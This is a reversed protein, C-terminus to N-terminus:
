RPNFQDPNLPKPGAERSQSTQQWRALLPEVRAADADGFVRRLVDRAANLRGSRLLAHAYSSAIEDENPASRQAAALHRLAARPQNLAVDLLHGLNHLYSACTPHLQIARRYARAAAQYHGLLTHALGLVAWARHDDHHQLVGRALVAARWPSLEVLLESLFQRAFVGAHSEPAARSVLKELMPVLETAELEQAVAWHVDHLLTAVDDRQAGSM